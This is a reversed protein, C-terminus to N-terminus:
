QRRYEAIDDLQCDLIECLTNLTNTSVNNNHKLRSLQGTSFNYEQILKYQTIGKNQMTEWLKEYIIM